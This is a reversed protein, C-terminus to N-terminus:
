ERWEKGDKLFEKDNDCLYEMVAEDSILQDYDDQLWKLLIECAENKWNRVAETAREIDHSIFRCIRPYKDIDVTLPRLWVDVSNKDCARWNVRFIDGILYNELIMHSLPSSYKFNEKELIYSIEVSTLYAEFSAYEPMTYGDVRFSDLPIDIGMTNWIHNHFEDMTKEYWDTGDVNVYRYTSLANKQAEESLENFKYINITKTRM